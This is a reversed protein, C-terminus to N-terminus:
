RGARASWMRYLPGISLVVAVLRISQFAAVVPVGLALTRATLSMEAIGGPSTALLATAPAIGSAWALLWGFGAAILLYAVVLAVVAAIFRPAATLFEPTFRSGLACGLALQAANVLPQPLASLSIGCASLVLAGALPGITWANTVNLRAVIWGCTATLAGLLLLGGPDVVRAAPVYPALGHVGAARFAFPVILVVMALRLSHAAAVRDVRAGHREAQNAMEAAGGIAAAFFATPGDLRALRSLAWAGCMGLGFAFIVAVAVWPLLRAVHGLVLPTFYLGLTTGIVWQGFSSVESPLPQNGVLRPFLMHSAATAVLPGILWPLPTGLAACALAALAGITLTRVVRATTNAVRVRSTAPRPVRRSRDVPM